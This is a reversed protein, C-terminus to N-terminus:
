RRKRGHRRIKEPPLYEPFRELDALIVPIEPDRLLCDPTELGGLVIGPFPRAKFGEIIAYDIGNDAMLRLSTELDTDRIAAVSKEADIGVAIAAGSSFFETTDKGAELSYTHDGLHKIVGVKGKAALHPILRTILTTKGSGSRGAVHIIKM